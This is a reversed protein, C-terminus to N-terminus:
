GSAGTVRLKWPVTLGSASSSAGARVAEPQRVLYRWQPVRYRRGGGPPTFLNRRKDVITMEQYTAKDTFTIPSSFAVLDGVPLYRVGELITDSSVTSAERM